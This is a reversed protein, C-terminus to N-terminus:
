FWYTNVKTAEYRSKKNNYYFNVPQYNQISYRISLANKEFPYYLKVESKSHKLFRTLGLSNDGLFHPANHVKIFTHIEKTTEDKLCHLELEVADKKDPVIVPRHFTRFFPGRMKQSGLYGNREPHKSNKFALKFYRQNGKETIM